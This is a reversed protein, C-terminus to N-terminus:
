KQEPLGKTGVGSFRIWILVWIVVALIVLIWGATIGQALLVVALILVPIAAFATLKANRKVKDAGTFSNSDVM